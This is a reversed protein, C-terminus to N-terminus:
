PGAPRTGWEGGEGGPPDWRAGREEGERTVCARGVRGASGAGRV